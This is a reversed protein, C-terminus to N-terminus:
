LSCFFYPFSSQPLLLTCNKRFIPIGGSTGGGGFFVRYGGIQDSITFFHCIELLILIIMRM